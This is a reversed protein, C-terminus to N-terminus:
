SKSKREAAIEGFRRGDGGLTATQGSFSEWRLIATDVYAPEIEMAYCIRGTTEAAIITSGSGSFPDYVVEGARAHNLMPRRM